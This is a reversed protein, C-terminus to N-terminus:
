KASASKQVIHRALAESVAADPSFLNGTSGRCLAFCFSELPIMKAIGPACGHIGTSTRSPGCLSFTRFRPCHLESALYSDDVTHM